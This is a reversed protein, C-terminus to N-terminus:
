KVLQLEKTIEKQKNNFMFFMAPGAITTFITGASTALLIASDKNVYGIGLIATALVLAYCSVIFGLLRSSSRNGVSDRFFGFGKEM